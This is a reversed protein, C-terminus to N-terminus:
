SWRWDTAFWRRCTPAAFRIALAMLRAVRPVRSVPEPAPEPVGTRIELRRSVRQIRFDRQITVSM